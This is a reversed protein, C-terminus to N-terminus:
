SAGCAPEGREFPGPVVSGTSVLMEREGPRRPRPGSHTRRSDLWRLAVRTAEVRAAREDSLRKKFVSCHFGLALSPLPQGIEIPRGAAM